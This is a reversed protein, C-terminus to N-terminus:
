TLLGVFILVLLGSFIFVIFPIIWEIVRQVRGAIQM